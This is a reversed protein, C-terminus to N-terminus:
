TSRSRPSRIPTRPCRAMASKAACIVTSSGLKSRPDRSAGKMLAAFSEMNLRGKAMRANHCAVCRKHFIHAVERSFSVWQGMETLTTEVAQQKTLWDARMNKLAANAGDVETKM